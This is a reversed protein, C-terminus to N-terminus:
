AVEGFTVVLSGTTNSGAFATDSLGLYEGNPNYSGDANAIYYGNAVVANNAQRTLVNGGSIQASTKTPDAVAAGIPAIRSFAPFTINRTTMGGVTYHQGSAIETGVIGSLGVMSLNAFVGVGRPTSDSIRLTRKYYGGSLTWTGVWSGLSADLSPPGSLLQDPTIRVEYDQGAPSSILRVPNGVISIAAKPPVTAIRALGSRTTTAGNAARTATITINSGSGVYGTRNNTVLKTAAYATPEDILLDPSTYSVSDFDSVTASITGSEGAGFAGQGAPYSVSITGITPYTQNLLVTAVSTHDPGYTGLENKARITVPQQGSANSITIVGTAMGGVVPLTVPAAAAGGSLITLEVAEPETTITVSITDGAKLETQTGPYAGFVVDLVDPGPGALTVVATDSGGEDTTATIINEGDVLTIDAYGVFWRKTSSESLTAPVGNVSVSPSYNEGGAAGVWVRVTATDSTASALVSQPPISDEWTYQGVIGGLGTVNQIFVAASGTGSRGAPGQAAESVVSIQRDEVVIREPLIESTQTSQAPEGRVEVPVEVEVVVFGTERVTVIHPELETLTVTEFDSPEHM